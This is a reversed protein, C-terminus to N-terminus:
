GHAQMDEMIELAPAFQKEYNWEKLLRRRGKQGMEFRERPHDIFWQIAEAISKPDEPRCSVACGADVFTNNWDPRDTVLIALGRALYEFVKNSAGVSSDMNPDDEETQVVSIGVDSEDSVALKRSQSVVGLLHLNKEVGLRQAVEELRASYGVHGTTEYGIVTLEVKGNLLAMAEVFTQPLRKPNISGHYLLRLKENVAFLRQRGIEDLAPCNWICLLGATRGTEVSFRRLREENPLICCVARLVM